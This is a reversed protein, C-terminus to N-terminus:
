VRMRARGTDAAICAAAAAHSTSAIVPSARGRCGRDANGTTGGREGSDVAISTSTTENAAVGDCPPPPPPPPPPPRPPERDIPDNADDAAGDVFSGTGPVDGDDDGVLESNWM